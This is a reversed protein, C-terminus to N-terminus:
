IMSDIKLLNYNQYLCRKEEKKWSTREVKIEGQCNCEECDAWIEEKALYYPVRVYGNGRCENCIEKTVEETKTDM